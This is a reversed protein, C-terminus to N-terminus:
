RGKQVYYIYVGKENNDPLSTELLPHGLFQCFKPIDRTTAPDTALVQIINGEAIDRIANHLLMVPEPCTLGQTDLIKNIKMEIYLKVLFRSKFLAITYIIYLGLWCHAIILM